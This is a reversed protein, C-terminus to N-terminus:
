PVILRYFASGAPPNTDTFSKTSVNSSVTNWVGSSLSTTRQVHVSRNARDSWEFSFMGASRSANKAEVPVLSISLALSDQGARYPNNPNYYYNPDEPILPPFYSWAALVGFYHVGRELFIPEGSTPLEFSSVIAESYNPPATLEVEVTEGARIAFIFGESYSSTQWNGYGSYSARISASELAGELKLDPALTKVGQSTTAFVAPSGLFQWWPSSQDTNEWQELAHKIDEVSQIVEEISRQYDDNPNWWYNPNGWNTNAGPNYLSTGRWPAGGGIAGDFWGLPQAFNYPAATWAEDADIRGNGNIDIAEGTKAYGILVGRDPLTLLNTNTISAAAANESTLGLFLFSALLVLAAMQVIPFTAGCEIKLLVLNMLNGTPASFLVAIKSHSSNALQKNM